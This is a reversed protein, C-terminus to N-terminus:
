TLKAQALPVSAGQGPAGLSEIEIPPPQTQLVQTPYEVNRIYRLDRPIWPKPSHLQSLVVRLLVDAKGTQQLAAPLDTWGAERAAVARRVGNKIYYQPPM